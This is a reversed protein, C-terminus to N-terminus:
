RVRVSAPRSRAGNRAGDTARVAYWYRRRAATAPLTRDTLRTRGPKTTAVPRWPTTAGVPKRLVTYAIRRRALDGDRAPRWSVRVTGASPSTARVRRPATPAFRDRPVRVSRSWGSWAAATTGDSARVRYTVRGGRVLVDRVGLATTSKSAFVSVIRTGTVTRRQVRYTLTNDDPDSAAVWAVRVIGPSLVLAQPRGARTPGNASGAVTVPGAVNGWDSVSVGDTVRASYEYTAGIVVAGDEAALSSGAGGPGVVTTVLQWAGGIGRRYVRYTLTPSDADDVPQWTLDVVGARTSTASLDVVPGPPVTDGGTFQALGAHPVYSVRTFDGGAMVHQASTALSYVGRSGDVKPNWPDTAGTQADFAALHRREDTTASGAIDVNDFHGGVYVTSATATGAQVDGDLHRAWLQQGDNSDYARVFGGPGRGDAYLRRGDPSMFVDLVVVDLGPQVNFTPIADGSNDADAPQVVAVNSRAAGGINTFVGGVVVAGDDPRVALSHVITGILNGKDYTDTGSPSPAWTLLGADPRNASPATFAALRSRPQGDAAAFVGAVYVVDQSPSLALATARASLAPTWQRLVAGTAANVAALRQRREGGMTMFSGGVYLTGDDALALAAVDGDPQPSWGPLPQGTAADLAALHSAPVAGTAAADCPVVRPPCLYEFTGGVYVVSGTADYVIADVRADTQWMNVDPVVAVPAAAASPAYVVAGAATLALVGAVVAAILSRGTRHM